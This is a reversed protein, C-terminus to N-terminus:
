FFSFDIVRPRLVAQVVLSPQSGKGYKCHRKGVLCGLYGLYRTIWLEKSSHQHQATGTRYRGSSPEMRTCGFCYCVRGVRQYRKLSNGAGPVEGRRGCWLLSCASTRSAVEGIGAKENM